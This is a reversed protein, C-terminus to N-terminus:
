FFKRKTLAVLLAAIYLSFIVMHPELINFTERSSDLFKVLIQNKPPRENEEILKMRRLYDLFPKHDKSYTPMYEEVHERRWWNKSSSNSTYHYLYKQIRIYKPPKQRWPSNRDLFNLVSKEGTLIRHVMSLLWPNQKYSSLAAFWMQWDVRPQHPAVFPPAGSLKGPKYPFEFEVWPGEIKNSGEIIIEPRGGVGTMHRFLGYPISLQLDKTNEHWKRFAPWIVEKSPPHLTSFPVLSMGFLIIVILSYGTTTFFAAVKKLGGKVEFLSSTLAEAITLLLSTAGLAM